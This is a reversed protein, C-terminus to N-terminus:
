QKVVRHTRLGDVAGTRLLYIGSTLERMDIENRGSSLRGTVLRQGAITLLEYPLAAGDNHVALIEAVPNGVIRLNTGEMENLGVNLLVYPASTYSCEASISMTVTYTGNQDPEYTTGTAGNIEQGNLFWQFSGNGTTTLLTGQTSISPLANSTLDSTFKMALYFNPWMGGYAVIDGSPMLLGGLFLANGDNINAILFGNTGYDPVVNGNVDRKLIVPYQGQVRGFQLTSGDALLLMKRGRLPSGGFNGPVASVGDTGYSLDLDGNPMFRAMRFGMDDTGSTSVLIRGDPQVALGMNPSYTSVSSVALGNTGFDPDPVGTPDFKAIAIVDAGTNTHTVVLVSGDELLMGNGRRSYSFGPLQIRAAGGVGFDTDPTGDHNFRFAGVIGDFAAGTCLITSDANVFVATLDGASYDFGGIGNFPFRNYGTGNFTSDVSGDANLRFVGPWQQSGANSPAIMGCGVIKGDPQLTASAGWTREEHVIEVKGGTGFGPDLAGCATDIAIYGSHHNNFGNDIAGALLLKGDPRLLATQVEGGLPLPTLLVGNNGFTPALSPTQAYALLTSSCLLVASLTRMTPNTYSTAFM